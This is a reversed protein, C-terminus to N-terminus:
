RRKPPKFRRVCEAVVESRSVAFEEALADLRELVDTALWLEVQVEGEAKRRARHEAVREKVTKAM